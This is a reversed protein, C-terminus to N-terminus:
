ENNHFTVKRGERKYDLDLSLAIVALVETLPEDEFSASMRREKFSSDSLVIDINYWRELRDAIHVLSKDTFVLKKDKWAILEEINGEGKEILQGASRYTVWQNGTLYITETESSGGGSEVEEEERSVAVKGEAVAVQVNDDYARVNFSTGLVRTTTRGAHVIFPRSEDRSVSFFGEGELYVERKDRSFKEPYRLTSGANLRIVSEDGFRLTATQGNSLTRQEFTVESQAHTSSLDNYSFYLGIGGAIVIILAMAAVKLWLGSRSRRSRQFYPSKIESNGKERGSRNGDEKEIESFLHDRIEDKETFSMSGKQGIETAVEQLLSINGPEKDLWYEVEKVEEPTCLGLLYNILLQRKPFDNM